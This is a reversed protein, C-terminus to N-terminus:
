LCKLRNRVAKGEELLEGIDRQLAEKRKVLDEQRREAAQKIAAYMEGNLSGDTCSSSALSQRLLQMTAHLESRLHKEGKHSQELSEQIQVLEQEATNFDTVLQDFEKVKLLHQEIRGDALLSDMIDIVWEQWLVDSEMYEKVSKLVKQELERQGLAEELGEKLRSLGHDFVVGQFESQKALRQLEQLESDVVCEQQVKMIADRLDKEQHEAHDRWRCITAHFDENLQRELPLTSAGM